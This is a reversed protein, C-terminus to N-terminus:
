TSNNLLRGKVAIQLITYGSSIELTELVCVLTRRPNPCRRLLYFASLDASASILAKLMHRAM